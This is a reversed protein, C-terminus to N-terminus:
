LTDVCKMLDAHTLPRDTPFLCCGAPTRMSDLILQRDNPAEYGPENPIHGTILLDAGVKALFADATAKSVDRGWVISHISGGLHLDEEESPDCELAARDFDDMRKATPLSHSLFVGNATRVAIPIVSFLERYAEYIDNSRPGYATMVGLVFWELPDHDGKAIKSGTWQALEHNGLLMHVRRPYECKLASLLDLMQHSKDGGAPYENPGHVLEQVVLHRTPHKKLQAKDLLLRFNELNGHMDGAILVETADQLYVVRGRRGPTARFHAVAAKITRLMREPDPM